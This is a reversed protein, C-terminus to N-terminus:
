KERERQPPHCAGSLSCGACGCSCGGSKGGRKSKKILSAIIAGVILVMVAAILITGLQEYLWVGM